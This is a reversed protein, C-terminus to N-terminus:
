GLQYVFIKRAFTDCIYLSRGQALLGVPSMLGGGLQEPDRVALTTVTSGKIQRVAGNGTDAVYISGDNGVAVGKPSSFAAQNTDGNTLGEEGSGAVTTVKGKELKVIRNRGTEAIYLVGDKWCLGTPDSLGKAVTMVGGDPNVRRVAGSGTDSVYLNGDDDSTLGTPNDFAVGLDTVKLKENTAGNLTRVSSVGVLRVVDNATDSVAWGDLFPAIAWPEKFYSSGLSADNYGGMPQGYLDVVTAGGAYATGARNQVQWLQKGYVDTVMLNGDKGLAIGSPSCMTDIASAESLTGPKRGKAYNMLTMAVEARTAPTKPSDAGAVQISQDGSYRQLILGVQEHTVPDGVGFTTPNYGNVIGQGSAWSIAESYWKGAPVDAFNGTAYAFPKGALRHLVTVMMARTLTGDPSFETASTGDMLGNAKCYQVAEAYPAGAPVDTYISPASYNVVSRGTSNYHKAANILPDNSNGISIANWRTETGAYHVDTLRECLSFAAEGITTISDPITVETLSRCASFM